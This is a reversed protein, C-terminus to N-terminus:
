TSKRAGAIAAARRRALVSHFGNEGFRQILVSQATSLAQQAGDIDGNAMLLQANVAQWAAYRWADKAPDPHAKELLIKAESLLAAAKLRDSKALEIDAENLLVQDLLEDHDPLRAISDARKIESLAFDLRGHYADIM